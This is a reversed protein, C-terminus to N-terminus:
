SERRLCHQVLMEYMTKSEENLSLAQILATAKMYYSDIKLEVAQLAGSEVLTQKATKLQNSTVDTTNFSAYFTDKQESTALQDFQEILFTRKGDIIDSSSSKGTAESDGFSGLIDDRLQYGIGLISGLEQLTNIDAEPAQALMAGTALPGIFSYSATKYRAIIEASTSPLAAISSESDLLEGGIGEFISQNLMAEAQNVLEAPRNTRRLVMHADALLADGALLATSLSLHAREEHDSVVPAYFADYQGAINNVGYRITDRDIIDDHILMALHVLEQAVAAPLVDNLSANPLYAQYTALVMYPRFRKGGALLLQEITHWLRAYSSGIELAEASRQHCFEYIYEDTLKKASLVDIPPAVAQM